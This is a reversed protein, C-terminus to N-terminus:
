GLRITILRFNLGKVSGKKKEVRYAFNPGIETDLCLRGRGFSCPVLNCRVLVVDGLVRDSIGEVGIEELGYISKQKFIM